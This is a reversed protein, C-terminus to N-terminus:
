RFDYTKEPTLCVDLPVDQADVPLTGNMPPLLSLGVKLTGEPCQSLFRDYFGAGYGLRNGASDFALLPVLVMDLAKIDFLRQHAPEPIGLKSEVLEDRTSMPHHTLTKSNWHTKSIVPTISEHALLQHFLPMTDVEKNKAIPLFLHVNKAQETTILEMAKQCVITSKHHVEETTIAKRLALYEKRIAQKNMELSSTSVITSPM